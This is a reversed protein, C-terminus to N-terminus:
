NGAPLPAAHEDDIIQIIDELKAKFGPNDALLKEFVGRVSSVLETRMGTHYRFSAAQLSVFGGSKQDMSGTRLGKGQQWELLVEDMWFQFRVLKGSQNAWIFLDCDNETDKFWRRLLGAADQKLLHPDIERLM